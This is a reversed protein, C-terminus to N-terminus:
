NRRVIGNTGEQVAARASIAAVISSVNASRATTGCPNMRRAFTRKGNADAQFAERRPQQAHQENDGCGSDSARQASHM